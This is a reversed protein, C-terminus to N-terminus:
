PTRQAAAAREMHAARLAQAQQLTQVVELRRVLEASQEPTLRRLAEAVQAQRSQAQQPRAAAV